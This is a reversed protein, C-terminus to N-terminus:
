VIDRELFSESIELICQTDELILKVGDDRTLPFIQRSVSASPMQGFQNRGEYDVEDSLQNDDQKEALELQSENNSTLCM